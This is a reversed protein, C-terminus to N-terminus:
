SSGASLVDAVLGAVLAAREAMASVVVYEGEGHAHDGVAGLGDLTPVGLAAIHNGDSGGGVSAEALEPLGLEAALRQARGYLERSSDRELPPVFTEREVALTADPRNPRLAAFGADVREAEEVTAYRVDFRASASAPVTNAATGATLLSPTVTTGLSPEALAAAAIAQEAVELAANVGREPNLGAHAARGAVDLRYLAVGKRETKLAGDFSPELILAAEAGEAEECLLARSTPSGLEEDTTLLVTLGDLPVQGELAAVAYLLQVVGAKMDFVGPGSARDGDVAFPWRELTGLPWVTDLHGVLLVRTDGGFRWRLHTRGGSEVREARRRVIRLALDDAVAACSDCAELDASPSEAAVLAELAEVM